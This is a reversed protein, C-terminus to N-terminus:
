QVGTTDARGSGMRIVRDGGATVKAGPPVLRPVDTVLRPNGSHTFWSNAALRSLGFTVAVGWVLQVAVVVWLIGPNADPPVDFIQKLIATLVINVLVIPLLVKWCLGMLQDYRFRPLTSRLWFYFFIFGSMKGVFWLPSAGSIFGVFSDGGVQDGTIGAIWSFPSDWGGLFVSTALIAIVLMNIYEALFFLGFRIGSYETHYGAVLEGEAEPLDFPIRNTEAIGSTLYTIFAVPQLLIMWMHGSGWQAQWTVMGGLSLTGTFLMAGVLSIGMIIEYSIVQASSRLGGLLSYKNNSSWGAMILGYVGFSSLALIFLLGVNIDSIFPDIKIGFFPTGAPGFPAVAVATVATFFSIIPAFYFIWKDAQAPIIDEKTLL